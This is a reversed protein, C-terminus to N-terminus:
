AFAARNRRFSWCWLGSDGVVERYVERSAQSTISGPSEEPRKDIPVAAMRKLAEADPVIIRLIDIRGSRPGIGEVVGAVIMRMVEEADDAMYTTKDARQVRIPGVPIRGILNPAQTTM